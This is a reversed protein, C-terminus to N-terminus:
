PIAPLRRGPPPAGAPRGTSALTKRLPAQADGGQLFIVHSDFGSFVGRAAAGEAMTGPLAALADGVAVPPGLRQAQRRQVLVRRTRVGIAAIEVVGGGEIREIEVRHDGIQVRQHGIRLVPPWGIEAMVAAQEDAHGPVAGPGVPDGVAAAAGAAALLAEGREVAPRVVGRQVLRPAQKPRDLLFVAALQGPGVQEHEGAVDRQFGHAELGKAETAPAGIGPLRFLEVPPRFAGPQAVFAVATFALQMGAQTRHLHPQDVHIRFAGVAVRVRFSRGDVDTFGEGAHGHVIVLGHGQDSTAMGEALSM